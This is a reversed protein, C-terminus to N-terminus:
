PMTGTVSSLGNTITSYEEGVGVLGEVKAMDTVVEKSERQSLYELCAAVLNDLGIDDVVAADM